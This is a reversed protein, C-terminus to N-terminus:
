KGYHNNECVFIVPLGWLGAMNLAEYKQGQNAAGDGYMTIAVSGDQPAWILFFDPSLHHELHKKPPGNIQTTGITGNEASRSRHWVMSSTKVTATNQVITHPHSSRNHPQAACDCVNSQISGLVQECRKLFGQCLYRCNSVDVNLRSM